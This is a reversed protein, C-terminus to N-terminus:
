KAWSRDQCCCLGSPMRYHHQYQNGNCVTGYVVQVNGLSDLAIMQGSALGVLADRLAKVEKTLAEIKEDTTM